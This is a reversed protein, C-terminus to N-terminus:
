GVVSGEIDSAGPVGSGSGVNSGASDVEVRRLFFM